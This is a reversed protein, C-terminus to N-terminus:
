LKWQIFSQLMALGHKQSKEPHFQVAVINDHGIACAFPFGGFSTAALTHQSNDPACYYSHVFYVQQGQLPTLVPHIAQDAAFAVDNWGMHPIKYGMAPLTDPFPKVSGAVLGLGKHLGHELSTSMLAQMGLCIGLFPKGKGSEEIIAQDLGSEKLTHMCDRFAGVGPLVISNYEKLKDADRVLSVTGGAKELAKAVSHLNGMGYDILAIHNVTNYHDKPQLSAAIATM